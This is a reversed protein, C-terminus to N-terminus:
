ARRRLRIRKAFGASEPRVQRRELSGRPTCALPRHEALPAFWKTTLDDGELVQQILQERARSCRSSGSRRAGV